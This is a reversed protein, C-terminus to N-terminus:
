AHDCGVLLIAVHLMLLNKLALFSLVIIYFCWNFEPWVCTSYLLYEGFGFGKQLRNAVYRRVVRCKTCLCNCQANQVANKKILRGVAIVLCM